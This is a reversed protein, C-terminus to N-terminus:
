RSPYKARHRAILLRLRAPVALLRRPALRKDLHQVQQIIRLGFRKQRQYRGVECRQATQPHLPFRAATEAFVKQALKLDLLEEQSFTQLESRTFPVVPFPFRQHENANAAVRQNVRM